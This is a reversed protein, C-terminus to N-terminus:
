GVLVRGHRAASGPLVLQAHREHAGVGIGARFARPTVRALLQEVSVREAIDNDAERRPSSGILVALGCLLVMVAGSLALRRVPGAHAFLINSM